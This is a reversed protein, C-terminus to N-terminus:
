FMGLDLHEKIEDWLWFLSRSKPLNGEWPWSAPVPSSLSIPIKQTPHLFTIRHALLAVAGGPLSISSGYLRDGLIPYGIFSFQARIQHKRGTHLTVEVLTKRHKRSRALVVYDLRAEQYGDRFSSIVTTKLRGPKVYHILTGSDPEMLGEVVALYMKEVLHDRFQETLRAAAKSTRAFVMIGAAARDLRHVLGVFVNGPKAYTKKIWLKALGYLSIQESTDGQTLLGSPKYLVLLHNDEYFIPWSPHFFFRGRDSDGCNLRGPVFCKTM